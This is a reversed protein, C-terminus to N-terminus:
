KLARESARGSICPHPDGLCCRWGPCGTKGKGGQGTIPLSSLPELCKRKECNISANGDVLVLKNLVCICLIALM